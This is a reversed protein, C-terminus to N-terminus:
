STSLNVATIEAYSICYLNILLISINISNSCDLLCLKHNNSPSMGSSINLNKIQLIWICHARLWIIKKRGCIKRQTFLPSEDALFCYDAAIVDRVAVEIIICLTCRIKDYRLLKYVVYAFDKLHISLFCIQM